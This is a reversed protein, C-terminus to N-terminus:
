NRELGVLMSKMGTLAAGLAIIGYVSTTMHDDMRLYFAGIFMLPVASVIAFFGLILLPGRSLHIKDPLVLAAVALVLSLGGAAKFFFEPPPLDM